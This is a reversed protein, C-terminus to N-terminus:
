VETVDDEEEENIVEPMGYTFETEAAIDIKRLLDETFYKEPEKLIVKAYVKTGDPMEYRNAVKKLIQYKEALELLGYYRDLGKDYTLLVEVRKNEKTFRSKMM